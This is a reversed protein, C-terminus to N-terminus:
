GSFKDILQDVSIFFIHLFFPFLVVELNYLNSIGGFFCCFLLSAVVEHDIIMNIPPWPEKFERFDLLLSLSISLICFNELWQVGRKNQIMGRKEGIKWIIFSISCLLLFLNKHRKPLSEEKLFCQYLCVFM